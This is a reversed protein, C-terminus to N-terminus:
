KQRQALLWATAENSAQSNGHRDPHTLRILRNLMDPEINAETGSHLVPTRIGSAKRAEELKRELHNVRYRLNTAEKRASNAMKRVQENAETLFRVNRRLAVYTPPRGTENRAEELEKQLRDIQLQMDAKTIRITM